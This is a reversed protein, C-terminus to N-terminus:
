GQPIVRERDASSGEQKPRGSDDSPVAAATQTEREKEKEIEAREIAGQLESPTDESVPEEEDQREPRKLRPPAAKWARVNQLVHGYFDKTASMVSEIFSGKSADRKIGLNRTLSLDFERIEKQADPYLTEPADRLTQITSALSTQSRAIRAEIRLTDPADGLQRLLWSVRGKSRGTRPALVRTSITVQRSRLDAEIHLPGVADPIQLEAYLKGSNALSEQLGSMRAIPTRESKSLIQKVDRGLDKTLEFGIYRVLEDWRGAVAAVHEDQKGLTQNRAGERIRTWSPGMSDLAVAGSRPDSLYRILERLIYAQDPDSVGRHERQVVAETLM